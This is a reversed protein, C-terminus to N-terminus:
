GDRVDPIPRALVFSRRKNRGVFNLWAMIITAQQGVNEFPFPRLQLGLASVDSATSEVRHQGGPAGSGRIAAHSQPAPLQPAYLSDHHGRSLRTNTRKGVAALNKRGRIPADNQSRTAM